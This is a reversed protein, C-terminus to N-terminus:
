GTWSSFNNQLYNNQLDYLPKVLCLAISTKETNGSKFYLYHGQRLEIMGFNKTFSKTTLPVPFQANNWYVLSDKQFLYLGTKQTLFFNNLQEKEVKNSNLIELAQKCEAGRIKFKEEANTAIQTLSSANF